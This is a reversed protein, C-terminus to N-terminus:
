PQQEQGAGKFFFSSFCKIDSANVLFVNLGEWLFASSAASKEANEWILKM